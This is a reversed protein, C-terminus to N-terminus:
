DEAKFFLKFRTAKECSDQNGPVKMLSIYTLFCESINVNKREVHRIRLLSEQSALSSEPGETVNPGNWINALPGPFKTNM